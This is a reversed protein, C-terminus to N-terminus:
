LLYVYIETVLILIWVFGFVFNIQLIIVFIRLYVIFTSFFLIFLLEVVAQWKEMCIAMAGLLAILTKKIFGSYMLFM